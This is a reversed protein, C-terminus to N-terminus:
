KTSPDPPDNSPTDSSVSGSASAVANSALSAAGPEHSVAQASAADSHAAGIPHGQADHPIPHGDADIAHGFEDVAHGHQDHQNFGSSSVLGEAPALNLLKKTEAAREEREAERAVEDFTHQLDSAARRFERLGKGVNRAVQPLKTPGLVVLAVILIIVVEGVGLGLM